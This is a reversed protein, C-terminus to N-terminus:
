QADAFIGVNQPFHNVARQRAIRAVGEAPQPAAPDVGHGAFGIKRDFM